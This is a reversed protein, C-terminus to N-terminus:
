AQAKLIQDCYKDLEAETPLRRCQDMFDREAAGRFTEWCEEAAANLAGTAHGKEKAEQVASDTTQWARARSISHRRPEPWEKKKIM